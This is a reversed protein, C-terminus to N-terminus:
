HHAYREKALHNFALPNGSYATYGNGTGVGAHPNNSSLGTWMIRKYPIPEDFAKNAGVLNYLFDVYEDRTRLVEVFNESKINNKLWDIDFAAIVNVGEIYALNCSHNEPMISEIKSKQYFEKFSDYGYRYTLGNDLESLTYM